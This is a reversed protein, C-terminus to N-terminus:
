IFLKEIHKEIKALEDRKASIEDKVTSYSNRLKILNDKLTAYELKMKQIESMSIKRELLLLRFKSNTQDLKEELEDLQLSLEKEEAEKKELEKSISTRKEQQIKRSIKNFNVKLLTEANEEKSGYDKNNIVSFMDRSLTVNFEELENEEPIEVLRLYCIMNRGTFLDLFQEKEEDNLKEYNIHCICKGYPVSLIKNETDNHYTLMMKIKQLTNSAYIKTSVSGSLTSLMTLSAISASLIKKFNKSKM